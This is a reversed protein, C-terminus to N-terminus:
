SFYYAWYCANFLVFSSLSVLAAAKDVGYSYSSLESIYNSEPPTYIDVMQELTKASATSVKKSYTNTEIKNKIKNTIESRRRMWLLYAYEMIAMTVFGLGTLVYWGVASLKKDSPSDEKILM